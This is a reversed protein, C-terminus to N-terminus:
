AVPRSYQANRMRMGGGCGTYCLIYNRTGLVNLIRESVAHIVVQKLMVALFDRSEFIHPVLYKLQAKM